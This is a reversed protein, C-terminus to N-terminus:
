DWEMVNCQKLYLLTYTNQELRRRKERMKKGRLNKQGQFNNKCEIMSIKKECRERGEDAVRNGRENKMDNIRRM